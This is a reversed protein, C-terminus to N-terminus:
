VVSKRDGSSNKVFTNRGCVYGTQTSTRDCIIDWMWNMDIHAHAVCLLTLSKAAEGLPLLEGEARRATEDTIVGDRAIAETLRDLTGEILPDFRGQQVASLKAAYTLEALIRDAWYSTGQRGNAATLKEWLAM